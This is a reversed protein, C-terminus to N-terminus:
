MRPVISSTCSVYRCPFSYLRSGGHIDASQDPIVPVNVMDSLVANINVFNLVDGEAIVMSALLAPLVSVDQIPLCIFSSVQDDNQIVLSTAIVIDHGSAVHVTVFAM